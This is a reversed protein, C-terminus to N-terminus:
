KGDRREKKQKYAEVAKAVRLCRGCTVKDLNRSTEGCNTLMRCQEGNCCVVWGGLRTGQSYVIEHGPVWHVKQKSM